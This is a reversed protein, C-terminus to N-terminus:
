FLPISFGTALAWAGSRAAEGTPTLTPLVQTLGFEHRLTVVFRAGGTYRRAVRLGVPLDLQVDPTKANAVACDEDFHFVGSEKARCELTVSVALGAYPILLWGASLPIERGVTLPLTAHATKFDYASSAGAMRVRSAGKQQWSGAAAVTWAGVVRVEVTAALHAGWIGSAEVFSGVWTTYTPGAEAGVVWQAQAPIPAFVVAALLAWRCRSTGRHVVM